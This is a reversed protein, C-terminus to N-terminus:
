TNEEPPMTFQNACRPCRISEDPANRPDRFTTECRPCIVDDLGVGTAEGRVAKAAENSHGTVYGLLGGALMLVIDKLSSLLQTAFEGPLAPLGPVITRGILMITVGVMFVLVSAALILAITGRGEGM